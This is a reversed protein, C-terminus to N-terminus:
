VTVGVQYGIAVLAIGVAFSGGINLWARSTRGTRLLGLTEFSLTSFTTFAGVMGTGAILLTRSGIQHATALGFLLGLVLAGVFNVVMTGLPFSTSVKSMISRDLAYRASAGLAGFLAAYINDM